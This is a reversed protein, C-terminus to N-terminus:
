NGNYNEKSRISRMVRIDIHSKPITGDAGKWDGLTVTCNKLDTLAHLSFTLPLYQGQAGFTQLKAGLEHWAPVTDQFVEEEPRRQFLLFGQATDKDSVKPLERKRPEGPVEKWDAALPAFEPGASGWAKFQSVEEEAVCIGALSAILPAISLLFSRPCM